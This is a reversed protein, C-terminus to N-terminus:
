TLLATNPLASIDTSHQGDATLYRYRSCVDWTQLGTEKSNGKEVGAKNEAM